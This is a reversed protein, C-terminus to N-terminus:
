SISPARNWSSRMTAQGGCSSEWCSTTFCAVLGQWGGSRSRPATLPEPSLPRPRRSSCGVLVLRLPKWSCWQQAKCPRDQKTSSLGAPRRSRRPSGAFRPASGSRRVSWASWRPLANALVGGTRDRGSLCCSDACRPRSSSRPWSRAAGGDPRVRARRGCTSGGPRPSLRRARDSGGVVAARHHCSVRGAAPLRDRGCTARRARARLDGM